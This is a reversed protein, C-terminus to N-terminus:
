VSASHPRQGEFLPEREQIWQSLLQRVQRLRETDRLDAHSLIWLDFWPQASASQLRQLNPDRDGVCCPLHAIGLGAHAAKRQLTTGLFSGWPKADPFPCHELWYENMQPVGYGLWRTSKAGLEPDLEDAFRTAVYSAYCVRVLSRGLLHEPPQKGPRFMRLAVDAERKSLNATGYSSEVSLEIDPHTRCFPALAEFVMECLYREVCTVSVEGELREDGKALERQMSAMEAEM